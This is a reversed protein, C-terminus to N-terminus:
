SFALRGLFHKGFHWIHIETEGNQSRLQRSSRIKVHGHWLRIFSFSLVSSGYDFLFLLCDQRNIGGFYLFPLITAIREDILQMRGMQAESSANRLLKFQSEQYDWPVILSVGNLVGHLEAIVRKAIYKLIDGILHSLLEKHKEEGYTVTLEIDGTEKPVCGFSWRNRVVLDNVVSSDTLLRLIDHIDYIRNNYKRKDSVDIFTDYLWGKEMYFAQAGGNAYDM